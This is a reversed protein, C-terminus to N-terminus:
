GLWWGFFLFYFVEAIVVVAAILLALLVLCLVVVAIKLWIGSSFLLLGLLVLIGLILLIFYIMDSDIKTRRMSESEFQHIRQKDLKKLFIDKNSITKKTQNDFQFTRQLHIAEDEAEEIQIQSEQNENMSEMEENKEEDHKIFFDSDFSHDFENVTETHKEVSKSKHYKKNWQVNWGPNHLRNEVSCSVILIFLSSFLVLKHM